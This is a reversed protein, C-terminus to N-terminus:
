NKLATSKKDAKLDRERRDGERQRKRGRCVRACEYVYTHIHSCRQIHTYFIIYSFFTYLM